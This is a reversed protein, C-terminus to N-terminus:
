DPARLTVAARRLTPEHGASQVGDPDVGAPARDLGEAAVAAPRRLRVSLWGAVRTHRRQPRPRTSWAGFPMAGWAPSGNRTTSERSATQATERLASSRSPTGSVRATFRCM